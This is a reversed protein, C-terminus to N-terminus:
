SQVGPKTLGRDLLTQRMLYGGTALLLAYAIVYGVSSVLLKTVTLSSLGWFTPLLGAIAWPQKGVEAVFWGAICALWPLPILYVSARLLWISLTKNIVSHWVALMFTALSVFGCVIMLRYLWFLLNPYAPLASKAALVIHKDKADIINKHWPTLLWAYGLDAKHQDFETLLQPDKNDDRLDQLLVYAKIGSRIRTEIDPLLSQSEQGYIAYRKAQQAPHNLDPTTDGLGITFAIALLGIGSALKFSKAALEDEPKKLLWFASVGMITAAAAVYSAAVTHLYKAIAAPNTLLATFNTLEVRYSQYNFSAAVPNQMWGNALLVWYASANVALVILWTVLLHQYKGLREWGFWYPGFLVALLFFSSLAEIALPLAFVDGVYHSFYSGNMGFQCVVLLRTSMALAFNIAFFRGWLHAMTKYIPRGTYVFASEMLALFLALGLTLPIFLFHLMATIAFQWRSLEVVTESIM